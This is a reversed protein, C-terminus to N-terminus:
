GRLMKNVSAILLETDEQTLTTAGRAYGLLSIVGIRSIEAITKQTGESPVNIVCLPQTYIGLQRRNNNLQKIGDLKRGQKDLKVEIIGFQNENRVAVDIDIQGDPTKVSPMVEFGQLYLTEAVVKEFLGGDDSKPKDEFWGKIGLHVDLLNKLTVYEPLSEILDLKLDHNEWSYCYIQNSKKESELYLIPIRHLQAVQYAALSMTKTGGTLNFVLAQSILDPEALRDKLNKAINAINYPDTELEYVITERQLIAKLRECVPQTRRTYVLLIGDPHYHRVPLLNPMPQEGVLAIMVTM